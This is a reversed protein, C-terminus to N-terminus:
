REPIPQRHSGTGGPGTGRFGAPSVAPRQHQGCGLYPDSGETKGLGCDAACATMLVWNGLPLILGTEEALPIFESPLLLGRKPHNWRILAEAGILKGSNWRRSITSSSSIPRSRRASTKKWRRAPMSPLRCPRPSFVCPTAAPRRPRICPLIPRNCSQRGTTESHLDSSLSGSAPPSQPMRPWRSPLAATLPLSSRRASSGRRPLPMRQFESLDELIVVFEDGGLRAVTDAERVCSVLRRGVEQLLLDGTRHGLTDNLTKFNDLDVFLLALKRHNRTSVALAQQLRNLLLRRNPLRTLPDYFALNRIEEEAAEVDSIDRVVSLICPVGEIEIVSSSILVWFLHGDKKRYLTKEDRFSSNRTLVDVMEHRTRPDAWFNLELSTRGIVEERSFGMIELFKNSVDIYMGDSVRSICIGDLSTQFVTRYRAESARLAGAAAALREEAHKRDNIDAVFAIFHLPRGDSDHLISGTVKVWTTSGDKRIYRKEWSLIDAKHTVLRNLADASEALDEPDTIHQFTLGPVEELPYRVIDAFRQNCWMLRGEFSTHVIGVPAQEFTSRYREESDRLQMEHLKRGTIDQVVGRMTVPNGEADFQLRGIGYVWRESRDTQRVIRYEKDFPKGQGVVEGALYATMMALDAPHILALWGAVTHDYDRGIGFIGDLVETATWVGSPFDLVYSGLGGIIQADKLVSENERLQDELLKRETIDQGFVSIGTTAGKVVIRNLSLELIRGNALTFETRLSGEALVRRYLSPFLEAREPPVLDLPRMGVAPRIGFTEEIHRRLASNFAILRFELDVSWILAETSGILASLDVDSQERM